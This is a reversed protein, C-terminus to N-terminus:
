LLVGQDMVAKMGDTGPFLDDVIDGEQYGLVDLVWRNFSDPKNGVLGGFKPGSIIYDRVMPERGKIVRGGRWIVPEWAHQISSPRIQHWTKCYAGVRTDAPLAPLYHRLDRVNCSLAWGDPYEDQLRTLLDLHTNLDDWILADPHHEAYLKGCGLYPPDAYAFKM